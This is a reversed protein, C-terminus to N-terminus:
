VNFRVTSELYKLFFGMLFSKGKRFDGFVSVIVIRKDKVDPHLLIRKLNDRNLELNHVVDGDVEERRFYFVQM